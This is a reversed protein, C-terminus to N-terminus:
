MKLAFEFYRRAGTTPVTYTDGDPVFMFSRLGREPKEYQTKKKELWPLNVSRTCIAQAGMELAIDIRKDSMMAGVGRNQDSPLVCAENEYFVIDDPSQGPTKGTISNLIQRNGKYKKEVLERLTCFGGTVFGVVGEDPREALILTGPLFECLMEKFYTQTLWETPYAEPLNTTNCNETRCNRDPSFQGCNPCACVEYWPPGAFAEQYVKAMQEQKLKSLSMFSAVAQENGQYRLVTFRVNQLKERKEM